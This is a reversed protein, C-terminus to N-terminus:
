WRPLFIKLPPADPGLGVIAGYGLKIAGRRGDVYVCGHLMRSTLALGEAGCVGRQLRYTQGGPDALLFPDRVLYQLRRDFLDM